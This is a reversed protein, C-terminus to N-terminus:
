LMKTLVKHMTGAAGHGFPHPEREFDPAIGTVRTRLVYHEVAEFNLLLTHSSM